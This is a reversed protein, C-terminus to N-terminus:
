TLDLNEGAKPLTIGPLRLLKTGRCFRVEARRPEILRKSKTEVLRDFQFLARRVLDSYLRRHLLKYKIKRIPKSNGHEIAPIVRHTARQGPLFGLTQFILTRRSSRRLITSTARRLLDSPDDEPTAGFTYFTTSHSRTAAVAAPNM